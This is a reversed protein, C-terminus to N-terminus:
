EVDADKRGLAVMTAKKQWTFMLIVGVIGAIM